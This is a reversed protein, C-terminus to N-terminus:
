VYKLYYMLFLILVIPTIIKFLSVRRKKGTESRPIKFRKTKPDESDEEIKYYRPIYDFKRPKKGKMLM